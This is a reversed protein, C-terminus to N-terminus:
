IVMGNICSHPTGKDSAHCVTTGTVGNIYSPAVNVVYVHSIQTYKADMIQGVATYHRRRVFDM